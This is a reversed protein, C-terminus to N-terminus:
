KEKMKEMKEKVFQRVTVRFSLKELVDM